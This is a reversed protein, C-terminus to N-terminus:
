FGNIKNFFHLNIFKLIKLILKIRNQFQIPKPISKHSFQRIEKNMWPLPHTIKFFQIPIQRMQISILKINKTICNIRWFKFNHLDIEAKHSVREKRVKVGKGKKEKRTM